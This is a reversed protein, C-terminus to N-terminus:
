MVVHIAKNWMVRPSYSTDLYVKIELYKGEKSELIVFQVLTGVGGHGLHHKDKELDQNGDQQQVHQDSHHTVGISDDDAGRILLEKFLYPYM